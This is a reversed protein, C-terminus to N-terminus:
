APGLRRRRAVALALLAFHFGLFVFYWASFGPGRVASEYLTSPFDSAMLLPSLFATNIINAGFIAGSVAPQCRFTIFALASCALALVAGAFPLLLALFALVFGAAALAKM